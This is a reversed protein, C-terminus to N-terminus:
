SFSVSPSSEQKELNFHLNKVAQDKTEATVNTSRQHNKKKKMKTSSNHLRRTTCRHHLKINQDNIKTTTNRPPQIQTTNRDLKLYNEKLLAIITNYLGNTSKVLNQHGSSCVPHILVNSLVIFKVSEDSAQKEKETEKM